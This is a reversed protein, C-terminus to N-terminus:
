ALSRQQDFRALNQKDYLCKEPPSVVKGVIALSADQPAQMAPLKPPGQSARGTRLTCTIRANPEYDPNLVPPNRQPPDQQIQQAHQAASHLKEGLASRSKPAM